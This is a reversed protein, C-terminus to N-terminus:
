YSDFQKLLQYESKVLNCFYIAMNYFGLHFKVFMVVTAFSDIYLTSSTIINHVNRYAVYLVLLYNRVCAYEHTIVM